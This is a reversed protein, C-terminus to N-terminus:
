FEAVKVAVGKIVVRTHLSPNIGEEITKLYRCANDKAKERILCVKEIVSSGSSRRHLVNASDHLM